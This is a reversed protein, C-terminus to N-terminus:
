DIREYKWTCWFQLSSLIGGLPKYFIM